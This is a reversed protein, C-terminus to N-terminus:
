RREGYGPGARCCPAPASVLHAMGSACIGGMFSEPRSGTVISAAESNTFTPSRVLTVPELAKARMIRFPSNSCASATARWCTSFPAWTISMLMSSAMSSLWAAMTRKRFRIALSGSMARTGIMISEDLHATISAPRRQMWPLPMTFEILM